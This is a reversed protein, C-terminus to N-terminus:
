RMMVPLDFGLLETLGCRRRVGFAYNARDLLIAAVRRTADAQLAFPGREVPYGGVRARDSRPDVSQAEAAAVIKLEAWWAQQHERVVDVGSRGIAHLLAEPVERDRATPSDTTADRTRTSPPPVSIGIEKSQTIERKADPARASCGPSVLV